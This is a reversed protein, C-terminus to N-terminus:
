VFGYRVTYYTYVLDGNQVRYECDDVNNEVTIQLKQADIVGVTTCLAVLSLPLIFAIIRNM